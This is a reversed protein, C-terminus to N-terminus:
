RRHEITVIVTPTLGFPVLFLLHRTVTNDLKKKCVRHLFIAQYLIRGSSTHQTRPIVHIAIEFCKSNSTAVKCQGRMRYMGADGDGARMRERRGRPGDRGQRGRERERVAAVHRHRRSHGGRGRPPTRRDCEDAAGVGNATRQAGRGGRGSPHSVVIGFPIPCEIHSPPLIHCPTSLFIDHQHM